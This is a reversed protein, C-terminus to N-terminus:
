SGDTFTHLDSAHTRDMAGNPIRIPHGIFQDLNNTLAFAEAEHRVVSTDTRFDTRTRM